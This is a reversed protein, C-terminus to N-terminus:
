RNTIEYIGKKRKNYEVRERLISVVDVTLRIGIMDMRPTTRDMSFITVTKLHCLQQMLSQQEHFDVIRYLEIYEVSRHFIGHESILQESGVHYRIRRMYVYRYVLILSLFLAIYLVSTHFPCDEMGGYVLGLPCLLLLPLENIVFQVPHPTLTLPKVIEQVQEGAGTQLRHKFYTTM